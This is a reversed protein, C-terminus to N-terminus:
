PATIKSKHKHVYTGAKAAALSDKRVSNVAKHQFTHVGFDEHFELHSRRKAKKAEHDAHDHTRGGLPDVDWGSMQLFMLFGKYLFPRDTTVPNMVMAGQNLAAFGSWPDMMLTPFPASDPLAVLEPDYFTTVNTNFLDIDYETSVHSMGNSSSDGASQLKLRHTQEDYDYAMIASSYPDYAFTTPNDWNQKVNRRARTFGEKSTATLADAKNLRYLDMPFIFPSTANIWGTNNKFSLTMWALSHTVEHIILGEFDSSNIAMYPNFWAGSKMQGATFRPLTATSGWAIGGPGMGDSNINAYVWIDVEPPGFNNADALQTTPSGQVGINNVANYGLKATLMKLQPGTVTPIPVTNETLLPYYYFPYYPSDMGDYIFKTNKSPLKNTLESEFETKDNAQKLIQLFTRYIKPNANTVYDNPVYGYDPYPFMSTLDYDAFSIKRFECFGGQGQGLEVAVLRVNLEINDKMYGALANLANTAQTKLTQTWSPGNPQGDGWSDWLEAPANMDMFEINFKM